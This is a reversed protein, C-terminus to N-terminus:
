LFYLNGQLNYKIRVKDRWKIYAVRPSDASSAMEQGNWCFWLGGEFYIRPKNLKM